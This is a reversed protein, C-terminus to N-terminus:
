NINSSLMKEGSSRDLDTSVRHGNVVGEHWMWLAGPKGAAKRADSCTM